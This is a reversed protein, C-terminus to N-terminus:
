KACRGASRPNREIGAAGAHSYRKVCPRCTAAPVAEMGSSIAFSHVTKGRSNPQGGTRSKACRISRSLRIGSTAPESKMSVLPSMLVDFQAGHVNLKVAACKQVDSIVIPASIACM